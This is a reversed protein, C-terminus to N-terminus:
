RKEFLFSGDAEVNASGSVNIFTSNDVTDPMIFVSAEEPLNTEGKVTLLNDEYTAEGTISVETEDNNEENVNNENNDEDVNNDNEENVAHDNNSCAGVVLILLMGIIVLYKRM